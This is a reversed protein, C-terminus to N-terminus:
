KKAMKALAMQLPSMAPKENSTKSLTKTEWGRATYVRARTESGTATKKTYM